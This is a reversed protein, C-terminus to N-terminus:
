VVVWRDVILGEVEIVVDCVVLVSCVVLILIILRLSFFGLKGVGVWIVLVM